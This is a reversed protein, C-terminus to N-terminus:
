PDTCAVPAWAGCDRPPSTPRCTSRPPSSATPSTGNYEQRAKRRSYLTLLGFLAFIIGIGIFLRSFRALRPSRGSEPHAETTFEFQVGHGDESFARCLWPGPQGTPFAIRGHGDTQGQQVVTGDYKRRIEYAQQAFPSGDGHFLVLVLAEDQEIRYHVEHARAPHPALVTAATVTALLAVLCPFRM